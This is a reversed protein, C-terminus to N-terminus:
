FEFVATFHEFLDAWDPSQPGVTWLMVLVPEPGASGVTLRRLATQLWYKTASGHRTSGDSFWFVVEARETGRTLIVQRAVGGRVPLDSTTSAEWGAGRFCYLPDHVAHRNRSGDVILLMFQQPGVQCLRKVVNAAGYLDREAAVLPVERSAFQLGSTPLARLRAAADDLPVFEWLCIIALAAVTAVGLGFRGVTKM